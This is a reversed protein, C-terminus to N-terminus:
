RYRSIKSLIKSLLYSKESKNLVVAVNLFFAFICCVAVNIVLVLWSDIFICQRVFYTVTCSLLLCLLAKMEYKYFTSYKVKLCYAGFMPLFLMNRLIGWVTRAGALVILRWTTDEIFLMTLLVTSFVGISEGLLTLSSFKVKNTLTFINWLGEYPLTFPSALFGLTALLYLLNYDQGPLWLRFFDGTFMYVACLIPTSFCSLMKISKQLEHVLENIQGKAYLETLEPSFIGSFSGFLSLVLLSLTKSLSFSGMLAAGVFINAFLLDFGHSLMSSIKQLVNWSGAKVLEIVKKLDFDTKRVRLEPTLRKLFICNTFYVYLSLVLSNIGYYWIHPPFFFFLSVLIATSIFTGVIQRSYSLDLRKKIFTSLGYINTTLGLITNLVLLFFLFRIDFLLEDPVNLIRNIFILFGIAMVSIIGSMMLNSFFVSSFYKNAEKINGQLYNISIFRGAMANLAITMLGTYGIITNSLAIFGYAARGLTKVIFPTLFFTVALSIVFSTATLVTNIALQRNSSM